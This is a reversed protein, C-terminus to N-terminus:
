LRSIRWQLRRHTWRPRLRIWVMAAVVLLTAQVDQDLGMALLVSWFSTLVTAGMVDLRQM